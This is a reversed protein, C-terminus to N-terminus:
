KSTVRTALARQIGVNIICQRARDGRGKLLQYGARLVFLAAQSLSGKAQGDALIRHTQGAAIGYRYLGRLSLRKWDVPHYCLANGVYLGLFGKDRARRLLDTEEGRLIGNGKVGLKTDFGGLCDILDRHLAFSAGFPEPDESVVLRVEDGLDYWVLVGSLNELREGKFWGPVGKEGWDPLVCGGAFRVNPHTSIGSLFSHLWGPDLLVDDDTFIIWPGRAENLARNRAISLGVRAEVVSRIPLNYAAAEVIEPTHDSCANEIILVEVADWDVGSQEALSKLLGFLKDARNHTCICVSADPQWATLNEGPKSQENVRPM